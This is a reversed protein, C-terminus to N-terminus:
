CVKNYRHIYIISILLIAITFILFLKFTLRSSQSVFLVAAVNFRFQSFIVASPIRSSYFPSWLCRFYTLHWNGHCLIILSANVSILLLSFLWRPLEFYIFILAPYSSFVLFFFFFFLALVFMYAIQYNLPAFTGLFNKHRNLVFPSYILFTVGVM